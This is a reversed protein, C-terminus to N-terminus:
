VVFGSIHCYSSNSHTAVTDGDVLVTQTEEDHYDDVAMVQTGNITIGDGSSRGCIITVDWVEGTPVTTSESPALTISIPENDITVNTM